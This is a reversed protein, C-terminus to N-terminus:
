DYFEFLSELEPFIRCLKEVFDKDQMAAIIEDKTGSAVCQDSKYTGSPVYAAAELYRIRPDPDVDKPMKFVRLGYKGVFKETTPDPNLFFGMIPAFDGYDPVHMLTQQVMTKVLESVRERMVIDVDRDMDTRNEMNGHDIGM